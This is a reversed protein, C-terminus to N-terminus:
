KKGSSKKMKRKKEAKPMKTKRRERQATKAEKRHEKRAAREQEKPVVPRPAYSHPADSDEDDDATGDDDATDHDEGDSDGADVSAESDDGGRGDSDGREGGDGDSREGRVLSQVDGTPREPDYIEDLKRPIFSQRFVADELAAHDDATERGGDQITDESAHVLGGLERLLAAETDPRPAADDMRAADRVSAADSPQGGPAQGEVGAGDGERSSAASQVIFQFTKRLGLTPVGHKAFYADVHEIDARLFDFAHPHDHEVSQSVDIIWLHGEHYLINYESLDAHVLRCRHYMLRMTAVLECYLREWDGADLQAEADKLRPSAWGDDDGLFAMVLVHDRLEVPAPARLGANVLRKLNRMEKEAWLRVMKRPNHRSYGQRFRFEGSVYRDRDKFVLISTKYIKIAVSGARAGPLPPPTTAHYVNAEKGTSICGNVMELLERRVMKYLILLTRPDLVQQLTARDAKDKRRNVETRNTKRPVRADVSGGAVRSPDYQDAVHIRSAYQSLAAMQAATKSEHAGTDDAPVAADLAGDAEPARPARAARARNIAPLAVPGAGRGGKKDPPRLASALQRARNYQKTFDGRSLEWDADDVAGHATDIGADDADSDTGGGAGSNATSDTGSDAADSRSREATGDMGSERGGSALGAVHRGENGAAM